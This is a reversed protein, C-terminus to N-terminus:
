FPQKLHENEQTESQNLQCHTLFWAVINLIKKLDKQQIM